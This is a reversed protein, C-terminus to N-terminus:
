VKAESDGVRVGSRTAYRRTRVYIRVLRPGTFLGNLKGELRAVGCPENYYDIRIRKGLVEEVRREKMGIKLPGLGATTIRAKASLAHAPSAAVGVAISCALLAYFTPKWM